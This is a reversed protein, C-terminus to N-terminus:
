NNETTMVAKLNTSINYLEITAKAENYDDFIISNVYLNTIKNFINVIYKPKKITQRKM